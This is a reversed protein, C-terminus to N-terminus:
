SCPGHTPCGPGQPLEEPSAAAERGDQSRTGLEHVLIVSCSWSGTQNYGAALTVSVPVRGTALQCLVEGLMEGDLSLRTATGTQPTLQLPAKMRSSPRAFKM